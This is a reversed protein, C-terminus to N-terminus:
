LYKNVWDNLNVFLYVGFIAFIFLGTEIDM